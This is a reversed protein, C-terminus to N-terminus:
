LLCRLFAKLEKLLKPHRAGCKAIAELGRKLLVGVSGEAVGHKTAIQKYALGHLFFDDLVARQDPKLQAALQALLDALELQGLRALPPDPDPADFPMDGSDQLAELSETKGAGRKQAYRERLRSVARHHAISAVLPKLQEVTKVRSVHEVLEELAEIAVDEIEGPLYPELKLRAVAFAAPWLWRFTEDWASADGVRLSQLDPLSVRADHPL